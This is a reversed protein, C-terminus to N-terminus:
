LLLLFLYIFPFDEIIGRNPIGNLASSGVSESESKPIGLNGFPFDLRDKDQARNKDRETKSERGRERERERERERRTWRERGRHGGREGERERERERERRQGGQM